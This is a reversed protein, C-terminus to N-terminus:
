RIFYETTMLYFPLIIKCILKTNNFFPQGDMEGKENWSTETIVLQGNAIRDAKIM